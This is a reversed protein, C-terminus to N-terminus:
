EGGEAILTRAAVKGKGQCILCTGGKSVNQIFHGVGKCQLCMMKNGGMSKVGKKASMSKRTGKGSCSKCTVKQTKAVVQGQGKCPKCSYMPITYLAAVATALLVFGIFTKM